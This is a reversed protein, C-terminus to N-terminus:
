KCLQLRSAIELDGDNLEAIIATRDNLSKLYLDKVTRPINIDKAYKPKLIVIDGINVYTKLEGTGKNVFELFLPPDFGYILNPNKKDLEVIDQLTKLHSYDEEINNVLKVTVGKKLKVHILDKNPIPNLKTGVSDVIPSVRKGTNSSLPKFKLEKNEEM